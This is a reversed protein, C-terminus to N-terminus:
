DHINAANTADTRIVNRQIKLTYVIPSPCPADLEKEVKCSKTEFILVRARVTLLLHWLEGQCKNAFLPVQWLDVGVEQM